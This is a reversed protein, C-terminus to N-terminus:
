DQEVLDILEELVLARSEPRALGHDLEPVIRVSM